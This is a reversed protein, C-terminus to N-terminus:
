NLDISHGSGPGAGLIALVSEMNKKRNEPSDDISLALLVKM